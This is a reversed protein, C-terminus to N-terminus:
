AEAGKSEESEEKAGGGPWTGLKEAKPAESPKEPNPDPKLGNVKSEEEEEKSARELIRRGRSTEGGTPAGGVRKWFRAARCFRVNKPPGPSSLSSCSLSSPLM